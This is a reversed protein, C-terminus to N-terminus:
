ITKRSFDKTVSTVNSRMEKSIFLHKMRWFSAKEEQKTHVITVVSSCVRMPLENTLEWPEQNLSSKEVSNANISSERM